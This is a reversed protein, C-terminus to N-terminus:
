RWRTKRIQWLYDVALASFDPYAKLFELGGLVNAREIPEGFIEFFKKKAGESLQGKADSAIKNIVGYHQAILSHEELYDASLVRTSRINLGFSQIKEAIMELITRTQIADDDLLLEPKIFFLFENSGDTQEQQDILEYRVQGDIVGQVTELIKEIQM